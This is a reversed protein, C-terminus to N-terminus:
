PSQLAWTQGTTTPWIVPTSCQYTRGPLGSLTLTFTSGLRASSLIRPTPTITLRYIAGTGNTGGSQLVGYFSRDAAQILASPGLFGPYVANLDFLTTVTGDPTMQFISTADLASGAGWGKSTGYFNGDAGEVLAGPYANGPGFSVLNTFAGDQAIRFASGFASGHDDSNTGGESTTGYLNGDRSLVLGTPFSGLFDGNTGTFSILTTLSGGPTLQFVTGYGRIDPPSWTQGGFYTTGTSTATQEKSWTRHVM